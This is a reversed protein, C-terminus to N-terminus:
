LSKLANVLTDIDDKTNFAGLSIRVTGGLNVTGLLTHIFPACHFGTRLAIGYEDYLINGVDVPSYNDVTISIIGFVNGNQPIYMHINDFERLRSILYETLSKEEDYIKREMLWDVSALLSSIAVVNHSGAEFKGPISLPMSINMSDSGTGGAKVVSLLDDNLVVFGLM